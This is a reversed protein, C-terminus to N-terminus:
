TYFIAVRSSDTDTFDPTGDESWRIGPKVGFPVESKTLYRFGNYNETKMLLDTIYYFLFKRYHKGGDSSSFDIMTAFKENADKVMDAIKVTKRTTM